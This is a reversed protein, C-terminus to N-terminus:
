FSSRLGTAADARPLVSSVSGDGAAPDAAGDADPPALEGLCEVKVIRVPALGAGWVRVTWGDDIRAHIGHMLNDAVNTFENGIRPVVHIKASPLDRRVFEFHVVGSIGAFRASIAQMAARSLSGCSTRSAEIVRGDSLTIRCQAKENDFM